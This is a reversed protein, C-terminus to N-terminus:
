WPTYRWGFSTLLWVLLVVLGLFAYPVFHDQQEAVTREIEAKQMSDIQSFVAELGQQDDAAFVDGGTKAAMRVVEEPPDGEAVHIGYVVIQAAALQQGIDVDNGNMLDGSVGDSVLIILRDGEPQELLVRRADLMSVGIATGGMWPPAVEPRMFPLACKIASPDTTLPTWRVTTNGFFQLGFADGGRRDIFQEIAKMSADYRTGSGFPFGMSGSVDVCFLINTMKRQSQPKGLQLPGAALWIAIGLLLPALSASLNVIAQWWTGQPASSFDVPLPVARGRRTWTWLLLLMPIAEALLLWPYRFGNPVWIWDPIQALWDSM